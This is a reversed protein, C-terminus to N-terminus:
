DKKFQYNVSIQLIVNKKLFVTYVCISMYIRVSMGIFVRV